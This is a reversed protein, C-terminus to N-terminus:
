KVTGVQDLHIARQQRPQQRLFQRLAHRRAQVGTKKALEPASATSVARFNARAAVRRGAHKVKFVGKVPQGQARKADVASFIKAFTKLRQMGPHSATGM